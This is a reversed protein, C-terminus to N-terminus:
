AKPTVLLKNGQDIVTFKGDGRAVREDVWAQVDTAVKFGGPELVDAGLQSHIWVGVQQGKLLRLVRDTKWLYLEFNEAIEKGEAIIDDLDRVNKPFLRGGMGMAKGLSAAIHDPLSDSLDAPTSSNYCYTCTYPCGTMTILSKIYSEAHEPYDEYFVRRDPRPCREINQMPLIGPKATGNLIHRLGGFGESMVVYDAYKLSDVPFYTAHPGGVLIMVGPFDTRLKKFADALQTHNGTYVNFGVADPKFDKVKEFFSEFDHDKVLHIKPDWGISRALGALHLLGLPEIASYSAGFLIRKKRAVPEFAM